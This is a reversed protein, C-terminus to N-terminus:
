SLETPLSRETAIMLVQTQSGLVNYIFLWIHGQMDTVWSATMRALFYHAGPEALSRDWSLFALLSLPYRVAEDPRRGRACPACKRCMYVSLCVGPSKLTPKPTSTLNQM